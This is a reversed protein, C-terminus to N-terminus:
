QLYIINTLLIFKGRENYHRIPYVNNFRFNLGRSMTFSVERTYARRHQAYTVFMGGMLAIQSHSNNLVTTAGAVVM